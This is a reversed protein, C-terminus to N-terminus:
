EFHAVLHLEPCLLRATHIHHGCHFDHFSRRVSGPRHLPRHAQDVREPDGHRKVTIDDKGGALLLWYDGAILPQEPRTVWGKPQLCQVPLGTERTWQKHFWTIFHEHYDGAKLSRLGEEYDLKVIQPNQLLRVPTLRRNFATIAPHNSRFGLRVDPYTDLVDRLMATAAVIDGPACQFEVLYDSM